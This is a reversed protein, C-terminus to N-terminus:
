AKRAAKHSANKRYLDVKPIVESTTGLWQSFAAYWPNDLNKPVGGENLIAARLLPQTPKSVLKDASPLFAQAEADEGLNVLAKLHLVVLRPSEPAFNLGNATADKVGRWDGAAAAMRALALSAPAGFVANGQLKVLEAEDMHGHLRLLTHIAREAGVPKAKALIKNARKDDGMQRAALAEALMGLTTQQSKGSVYRSIREPLGRVWALLEGLFFATLLLFVVTLVAVVGPMALEYDAYSLTVIGPDVHRMGALGLMALVLTMLALALKM